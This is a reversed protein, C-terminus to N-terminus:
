KQYFKVLEDFEKDHMESSMNLLAEAARDIESSEIVISTFKPKKENSTEEDDDDDNEDYPSVTKSGDVVSTPDIVIRTFEEKKQKLSIINWLPSLFSPVTNDKQHRAIASDLKLLRKIRPIMHYWWLGNEINYAQSAITMLFCHISNRLEMIVNVNTCECMRDVFDQFDQIMGLEYDNLKLIQLITQYYYEYLPFLISQESPSAYMLKWYPRRRSSNSREDNPTASSTNESFSM